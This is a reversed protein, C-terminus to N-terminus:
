KTIISTYLPLKSKAISLAAIAKQAVNCKIEVIISGKQVKAIYHDVSGKGKGMRVESPKKTVPMHPFIRHNIEGERKLTRKIALEISSIHQSLIIGPEQAILGFKGFKLSDLKIGPNFRGGKQSKTFKFNSPKM